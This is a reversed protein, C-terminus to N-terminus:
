VTTTGDDDAEARRKLEALEDELLRVAREKGEDYESATQQTQAAQPSAIEQSAVRAGTKTRFGITAAQHSKELEALQKMFARQDEDLFKRLSADQATDKCPDQRLIRRMERLLTPPVTHPKRKGKNM